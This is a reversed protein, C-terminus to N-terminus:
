RRGALRAVATAVRQGVARVLGEGRGAGRAAGAALRGTIRSWITQRSVGLKRAAAEARVYGEPVAARFKARVRADLRVRM